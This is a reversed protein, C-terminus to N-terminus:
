NLNKIGSDKWLQEEYPQEPVFPTTYDICYAYQKNNEAFPLQFLDAEPRKKEGTGANVVTYGDAAVVPVVPEAAAAPAALGFTM